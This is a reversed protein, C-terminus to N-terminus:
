EYANRVNESNKRNNSKNNDHINYHQSGINVM